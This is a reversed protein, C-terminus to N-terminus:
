EETEIYIINMNKDFYIYDYGIIIGVNDLTNVLETIFEKVNGWNEYGVNEVFNEYFVYGNIRINNSYIPLITSPYGHADIFWPGYNSIIEYDEDDIQFPIKFKDTYRYKDTNRLSVM